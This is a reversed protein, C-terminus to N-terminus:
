AQHSERGRLIDVVLAIGYCIILVAGVFASVYQVALSFGLSPMNSTSNRITLDLAYPALIMGFLIILLAIVTRLIQQQAPKLHDLLVHMAFHSGRTIGMGTGVFILWLLSLTGVEESWGLAQGVVYRFFVGLMMDVLLVIMLAVLVVRPIFRIVSIVRAVGMDELGLSRPNSNM